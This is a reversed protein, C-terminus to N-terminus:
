DPTPVLRVELRVPGAAEKAEVVKDWPFYGPSEVSVRHAGIPLAVGRASVVDLTGIFVDDVTVSANPPSGTMRMSVIKPEKPRGCAALALTLAIVAPRM